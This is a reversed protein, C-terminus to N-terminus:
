AARRGCFACSQAASCYECHDALDELSRQENLVAGSVLNVREHDDLGVGRDKLHRDWECIDHCTEIAVCMEHIASRITSAKRVADARIRLGISELAAAATEAHAPWTHVSTSM